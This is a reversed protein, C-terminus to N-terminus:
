PNQNPKPEVATLAAEVEQIQKLLNTVREEIDKIKLATEKEFPTYSDHVVEAAMNYAVHPTQIRNHYSPNLKGKLIALYSAAGGGPFGEKPDAPYTYHRLIGRQESFVTTAMPNAKSCIRKQDQLYVIEKFNEQIAKLDQDAQASLKKIRSEQEKMKRQHFLLLDNYRAESGEHLTLLEKNKESVKQITSLYAEEKAEYTKMAEALLHSQSKSRQMVSRLMTKTEGQQPLVISSSSAVPQLAM